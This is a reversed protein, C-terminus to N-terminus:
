GPHGAELNLYLEELKTIVSELDYEAMVARGRARLRERAESSKILQAVADAATSIERDALLLGGREVLDSLGGECPMAVVPVGRAMAELAANSLVEVSSTMLFIDLQDLWSAVEEQEGVFRVHDEIGRAKAYQALEDHKSGDGVVLGSCAIGRRRLEGLIDIFLDVRKVPELRAVIGITGSGRKDAPRNVRPSITIGNPIVTLRAPDIGYAEICRAMAPYLAIFRSCSRRLVWYLGRFKADSALARPSHETYVRIAKPIVALSALQAALAHTHIHLISPRLQWLLRALGLLGLPDWGTRFRLRYALGEAVLADGVSGRGDLFCVRHAHLNRKSASRVIAAVQREIGGIKGSWVLHLVDCHNLMQRM